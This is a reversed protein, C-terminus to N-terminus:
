SGLLLSVFPGVDGGDIKGDGNVDASGIYCAPFNAQYLAPNILAQVFADVDDFDLTGDCGPDLDLTDAILIDVQAAPNNELGTYFVQVSDDGEYRDATMRASASSGDEAVLTDFAYKTEEISIM